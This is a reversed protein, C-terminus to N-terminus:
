QHHADNFVIGEVLYDPFPGVTLDVSRRILVISLLVRHLHDLDAPELLVLLQLFACYIFNVDESIDLFVIMDDLVDVHELSGVVEVEDILEAVPSGELGLEPLIFENDLLLGQEDEFLEDLSKLHKVLVIDHM